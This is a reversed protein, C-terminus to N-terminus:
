AVVTSTCPAGGSHRNTVLCDAKFARGDANAMGAPTLYRRWWYNATRPTDAPFNVGPSHAEVIAITDAPTAATM